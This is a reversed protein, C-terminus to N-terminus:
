KNGYVAEDQQRLSFRNNAKKAEEALKRQLPTSHGRTNVDVTEPKNDLDIQSTIVLKSERITDIRISKQTSNDNNLFDLDLNEKTEKTFCSILLLFISYGILTKIKM